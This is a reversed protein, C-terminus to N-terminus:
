DAHRGRLTAPITMVLIKLDLWPSWNEIYYNDWEVRDHLSTDGRLGHVQAWGTIGCKVRHRDGYRYVRDQFGKVLLPTEPRPGVLSMDGRLVNIFQPLEDLSCRRLFRGLPTRRDAVLDAPLAEPHLIAAAWAARGGGVSDGAGVCDPSEYMTRFKLMGFDRGDRSVRRQRYFVPGPSTLRVALAIMLMLPSLVLLAFAAVLRDLLYKCRFQWGQHGIPTVNLLTMGGLHTVRISGNMKEFLRPVLLVGVGLQHCRRLVDLYVHHPATSFAFIVHTVEHELVQRELDWSAGLVPLQSGEVCTLPEKDLFGVPRLGFEPRELLRQGVQTGVAGAGIILARGQQGARRVLGAEASRFAVLFTTVFGWLLITEGAIELDPAVLSRLVILVGASTATCAAVSGPEDFPSSRLHFHYLGRRHLMFVTLFGFLIAWLLPGAAPGGHDALLFTVMTAATIAVGDVVALRVRGPKHLAPAAVGRYPMADETLSRPAQFPEALEQIKFSM